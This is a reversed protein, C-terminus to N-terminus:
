YCVQPQPQIGSSQPPCVEARVRVGMGGKNVTLQFGSALTAGDAVRSFCGLRREFSRMFRDFAVFCHM